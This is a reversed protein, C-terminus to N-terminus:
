PFKKSTPNETAGAGGLIKARLTYSNAHKAHGIWSMVANRLKSFEISGNSLQRYYAKLRRKMARISRKRLLRHTAWIRYGLFDIGQAAPFVRTKQNLSLNLDDALYKEIEYRAQNLRGKDPGLLIFDDMYRLYFRWHLNQKVFLDLQHLYINAFLQSTLNGIPLGKGTEKEWSDVISEILGWTRHCGIRKHLITKLIEHDISPFYKRVDAKLVYVQKWNKTRGLFGTLRNAGAHTGRGVRCAFSDPIFEREWIPEIATVLAHQVVRDRFPLAAVEREKPEHVLFKYYGGIHYTQSNLEELLSTLELELGASFILVENKYRKGRRAKLYAQHLQEFNVFTDWISKYTKAM